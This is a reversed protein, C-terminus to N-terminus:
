GNPHREFPNRVIKVAKCDFLKENSHYFSAVKRSSKYPNNWANQDLTTFENYRDKPQVPQPQSDFLKNVLFM